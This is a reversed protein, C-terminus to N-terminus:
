VEYWPFEEMLKEIAIEIRDDKNSLSTIMSIPDIYHNRALLGIDYQMIQLEPFGELLAEEKAVKYKNFLTINEATAYIVREPEGLMTQEALATLGAKYMPLSRPIDKVYITKKIPNILFERGQLYFERKDIPKLIKKRGTKGSIDESIIGMQSLKAIARSVTMESIKLKKAVDVILFEHDESYLIYLYVLQMAATFKEREQDVIKVTNSKKIDLAMFPLFMQKDVTVFPIKSEIMKKIKYATPNELLLAVDYGSKEEIRQIQVKIKAISYDMIPKALLFTNGVSHVLFFDYNGALQINLYEKANWKEMESKEDISKKLYEIVSNM